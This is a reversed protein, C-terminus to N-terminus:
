INKQKDTIGEIQCEVIKRYIKSHQGKALQKLYRVISEKGAKVELNELIWTACEDTSDFELIDFDDLVIKVKRLKINGAKASVYQM